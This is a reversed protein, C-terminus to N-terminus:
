DSPMFWGFPWNGDGINCLFGDRSIGFRCFSSNDDAYLRVEVCQYVIKNESVADAIGSVLYESMTWIQVNRGDALVRVTFDVCWPVFVSPHTPVRWGGNAVRIEPYRLEDVPSHHRLGAAEQEDAYLQGINKGLVIMLKPGEYRLREGAAAAIEDARNHQQDTWQMDAM